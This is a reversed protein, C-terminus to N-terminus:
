ADGGLEITVTLKRAKLVADMDFATSNFRADSIANVCGEAHRDKLQYWGTEFDVSVVELERTIKNKSM